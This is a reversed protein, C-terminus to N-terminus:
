LICQYFMCDAQILKHISVCVSVKTRFIQPPLFFTLICTPCFFFFFNQDFMEICCILSIDKNFPESFCIGFSFYSRTALNQSSVSSNIELPVIHHHLGLYPNESLWESQTCTLFVLSHTSGSIHASVKIFLGLVQNSKSFNHSSFLQFKM